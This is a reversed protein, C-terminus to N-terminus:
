YQCIMNGSQVLKGLLKTLDFCRSVNVHVVQGERQLRGEVM